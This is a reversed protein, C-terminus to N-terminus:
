EVAVVVKGFHKSGKLHEYAEPLQDFRWAKGGDVVPRTKSGEFAAVVQELQARSGVQIGRVISSNMLTALLNPTDDPKGREKRAVLGIVSIVGEPKIAKYSQALTGTGGVEVIHDFGRGGTAERAAAGWAPNEAYNIVVDAGLARLRAAKAESSTTAVVRAGAIKALQLAFVSVGGTGQTLVWQGPGAKRGELGFLANWATVAACPLTAAEEYSWGDPIRVADEEAVAAYQRALGDTAGGLSGSFDSPGIQGSIFGTVFQPAVRDGVKWKRVKGGVAVVEGAGDSVPVIGEAAGFIYKGTAVALDRSNLSLAHLKVLIETDGIAPVPGDGLKLSQPGGFKEIRWERQTTPVAM